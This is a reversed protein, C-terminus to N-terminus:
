SPGKIDDKDNSNDSVYCPYYTPMLGWVGLTVWAFVSQFHCYNTRWNQDEPYKYLGFLTPENYQAYVKGLYRYKKNKILVRGKKSIRVGKPTKQYPRHRGQCREM